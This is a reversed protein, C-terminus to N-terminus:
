TSSSSASIMTLRKSGDRKTEGTSPPKITGSTGPRPNVLRAILDEDDDVITSARQSGSNRAANIGLGRTQLRSDTGSSISRTGIISARKRLFPGLQAIGGRRAPKKPPGYLKELEKFAAASPEKAALTQRWSSASVEMHKIYNDSQCDPTIVVSSATSRSKSGSDLSSESMPGPHFEKAFARYASRDVWPPTVKAIIQSCIPYTAEDARTVNFPPDLLSKLHQFMFYVLIWSIKRADLICSRGASPANDSEFQQYAKIIPM